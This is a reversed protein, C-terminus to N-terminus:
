TPPLKANPRPYTEPNELWPMVVTVGPISAKLFPRVRYDPPLSRDAMDVEKTPTTAPQKPDPYVHAPFEEDDKLGASTRLSEARAIQWETYGDRIYGDRRNNESIKVKKAPPTAKAMFTNSSAAAM